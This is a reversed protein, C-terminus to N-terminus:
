LDSMGEVLNRSGAVLTSLAPQPDWKCAGCTQKWVRHRCSPSMSENAGALHPLLKLRIVNSFKSHIWPCKNHFQVWRFPVAWMQYYTLIWHHGLDIEGYLMVLDCQTSVPFQDWPCILADNNQYSKAVSLKFWHKNTESIIGHLM